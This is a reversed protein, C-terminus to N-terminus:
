TATRGDPRSPSASSRPYARDEVIPRPQGLRCGLRSLPGSAYRPRGDPEVVSEDTRRRRAGLGGAPRGLAAVRGRLPGRGGARRGLKTAEGVAFDALGALRRVDDALLTRRDDKPM